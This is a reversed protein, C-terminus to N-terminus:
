PMPGARGFEEETGVFFAYYRDGDISAEGWIFGGQGWGTARIERIPDSSGDVLFFRLLMSSPVREQRVCGKGESNIQISSYSDTHASSACGNKSFELLIWGTYGEPIEISLRHVGCATWALCLSFLLFASITSNKM